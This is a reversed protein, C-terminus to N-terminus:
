WNVGTDIRRAMDNMAEDLEEDFDDSYNRGNSSFRGVIEDASMLHHGQVTVQCHADLDFVILDGGCVGWAKRIEAPITVQGQSSLRMVFNKFAIISERVSQVRSRQFDTADLMAAM